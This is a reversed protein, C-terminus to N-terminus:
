HNNNLLVRGNPCLGMSELTMRKKFEEASVEQELDDLWSGNKLDLLKQVAYDRIRQDWQMQEEWLDRAAQVVQNPDDCGEQSLYLLIPMSRWTTEVEYRNLARDLTLQGFFADQLIVPTQLKAARAELEVDRASKEPKGVLLAHVWDSDGADPAAVRARLTLIDYPRIFNRLEHLEQESVPKRVVLKRDDIEGAPNRWPQLDFLLTWQEEGCSRAGGAGSAHVVGAVTIMESENLRKLLAQQRRQTEAFFDETTATRQNKTDPM